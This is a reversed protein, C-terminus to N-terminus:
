LMAVTTYRLCDLIYLLTPGKRFGIAMRVQQGGSASTGPTWHADKVFQVNWSLAQYRDPTNDVTSCQFEIGVDTLRSAVSIGGDCRQEAHRWQM